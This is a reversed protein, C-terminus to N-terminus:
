QDLLCVLVDLCYTKSNLVNRGSWMYAKPEGTSRAACRTEYAAKCCCCCCYYYYYYYYYYYAHLLIVPAPISTKPSDQKAVPFGVCRVIHASVSPQSPADRLYYTM